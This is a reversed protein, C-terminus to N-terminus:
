KSYADLYAIWRKLTRSKFDNPKSPGARKTFVEGLNPDFWHLSKKTKPVVPGRGFNVYSAYEKYAGIEYTHNGVVVTRVSNKLQHTVGLPVEEEMIEKCRQVTEHEYNQLWKILEETTM